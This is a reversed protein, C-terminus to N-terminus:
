QKDKLGISESLEMIDAISEKSISSKVNVM